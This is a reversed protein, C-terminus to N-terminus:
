AAIITQGGSSIYQASRCEEAAALLELAYAWLSQFSFAMPRRVMSSMSNWKGQTILIFRTEGGDAFQSLTHVSNDPAGYACGANGSPAPGGENDFYIIAGPQDCQAKGSEARM